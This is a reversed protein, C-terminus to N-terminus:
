PENSVEKRNAIEMARAIGQKLFIEIAQVAKIVADELVPREKKSIVGLVHDSTDKNASRGVGIRLRAFEETGLHEILSKLGNHGGASGKPRLRLVGPELDVDDSVVLLGEPGIKYYNLVASVSQGSLNMFTMPKLLRVPVGWHTTQALEGNFSKQFKGTSKSVSILADILWFGVNHRTNQYEPGPNGLGVILYGNQSM